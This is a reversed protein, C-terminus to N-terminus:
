VVKETIFVSSLMFFESIIPIESIVLPREWFPIIELLSFHGKLISRIKQHTLDFESDSLNMDIKLLKKILSRSSNFSIILKGKPKLIRCSEEIFAKRGKDIVHDIISSSIIIDFTEKQFPIARCDALIFKVCESKKSGYKVYKELIDFDIVDREFDSFVRSIGGCGCGVDLIRKDGLEIRGKLIDFLIQGRIYEFDYRAALSGKNMPKRLKLARFCRKIHM